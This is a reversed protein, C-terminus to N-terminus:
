MFIEPEKRDVFKSELMEIIPKVPNDVVERGNFTCIKICAYCHICKEVDVIDPKRSDIAGVPCVVWCKRCYVCKNNASPAFIRVPMDPKYPRNGPLTPQSFDGKEIKEVIKKGFNFAIELDQSDPRNTGVKKTYSHEGIFAGGALISFGNEKLIDELEVLADEFARNGYVVIPVVFGEGKISKLTKLIIQPVRGAYVPVGVIVLTDKDNLYSDKNKEIFTINEEEVELNTGQAIKEVVKRTTNTPSFYYYKVKKITM